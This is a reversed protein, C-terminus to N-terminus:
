TLLVIWPFVFDFTNFVKFFSVIDINIVFFLPKLNVYKIIWFHKSYRLNWIQLIIIFIIQDLSEIPNFKSM